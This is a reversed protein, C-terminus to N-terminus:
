YRGFITEIRKEREWLSRHNEYPNANSYQPIFTKPTSILAAKKAVRKLQSLFTIGDNQTFHELILNDSAVEAKAIL